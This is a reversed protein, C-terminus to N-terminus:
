TISCVRKNGLGNLFQSELLITHVRIIHIHILLDQTDNTPKFIVRDITSFLGTYYTSTGNHRGNCMMQTSYTCYIRTVHTVRSHM